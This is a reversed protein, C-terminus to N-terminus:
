QKSSVKFCRNLVIQQKSTANANELQDQIDATQFKSRHIIQTFVEFRTVFTAVTGINDLMSVHTAGIKDLM